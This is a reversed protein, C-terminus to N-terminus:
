LLKRTEQLRDRETDSTLTVSETTEYKKVIVKRLIKKGFEIIFRKMNEKKQSFKMEM